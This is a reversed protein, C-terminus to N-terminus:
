SLGLLSRTGTGSASEIPAHGSVVHLRIGQIQVTIRLLRCSILDTAICKAKLSRALWIQTGDLGASSASVQYVFYHETELKASSQLRSEQVGVIDLQIDQFAADFEM